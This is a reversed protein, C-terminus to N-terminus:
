RNSVAVLNRLTATVHEVNLCPSAKARPIRRFELTRMLTLSPLYEMRFIILLMSIMGEGRDMWNYQNGEALVLM